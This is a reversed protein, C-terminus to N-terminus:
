LSQICDEGRALEPKRLHGPQLHHRPQSQPSLSPTGKERERSFTAGRLPTPHPDAGACRVEVLPEAFVAMVSLDRGDRRGEDPMSRM